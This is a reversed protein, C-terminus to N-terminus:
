FKGKNILHAGTDDYIHMVLMDTGVTQKIVYELADDFTIFDGAVFDTGDFTDVGVVRFMGKPACRSFQEDIGCNGGQSVPRPDYPM